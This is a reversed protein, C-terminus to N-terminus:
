KLWHNSFYNQAVTLKEKNIMKGPSAELAFFHFWSLFNSKPVNNNISLDGNLINASFVVLWTTAVNQSLWGWFLLLLCSFDSGRSEKEKSWGRWSSPSCHWFAKAGFEVASWRERGRRTLLLYSLNKWYYNGIRFLWYISANAKRLYM